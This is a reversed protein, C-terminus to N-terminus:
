GLEIRTARAAFLYSCGLLATYLLFAIYAVLSVLEGGEASKFHDLFPALLGVDYAL